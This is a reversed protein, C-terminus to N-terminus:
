LILIICQINADILFAHEILAICLSYKGVYNQIMCLSLDNIYPTTGAAVVVVVAQM